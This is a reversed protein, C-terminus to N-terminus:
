TAGTEVVWSNNTYIKSAINVMNVNDENSFHKILKHYQESTLGPIPSLEMDAFTTKSWILRAKMLQSPEKNNMKMFFIILQEWCPLQNQLLFKDKRHLASNLGMMFVYDKKKKLKMWDKRLIVHVSVVHARQLWHYLSFRRGYKECNPTTFRYQVVM